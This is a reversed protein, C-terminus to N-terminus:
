RPLKYVEKSVLQWSRRTGLEWELKLVSEFGAKIYREWPNSITFLNKSGPMSMKNNKDLEKAESPSVICAFYNDDLIKKLSEKDIKGKFNMISTIFVEKPVVHEHIVVHDIKNKVGPRLSYKGGKCEFVIDFAEQTWYTCGLKKAKPTGPDKRETYHWGIAKLIDFKAVDSLSEGADLLFLIDNLMKDKDYILKVGM